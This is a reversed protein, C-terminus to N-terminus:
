PCPNLVADTGLPHERGAMAALLRFSTGKELRGTGMRRAGTTGFSQSQVPLLDRDGDLVWKYLEAPWWRGLLPRGRPM